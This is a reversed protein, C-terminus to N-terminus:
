ASPTLKRSRKGTFASKVWCADGLESLYPDVYKRFFDADNINYMTRFSPWSQILNKNELTRLVQLRPKYRKEISCGLSTPNKVICMADYKGTSLLVEKLKKMKDESVAFVQPSKRFAVVIDDESFGLNRFAQLKLEWSENSMSSLVRIAHIYMKSSRKIGVQDNYEVFKRMTEPKCLLARPFRKMLWFIHEKAIGCSKLFEFNPALTKELNYKLFWGSIRLVKVLEVNPGLLGKLVSLSPTVRANPRRRLTDPNSTIIKAIEDASFGLDQFFKYKPKITNELSAVLMQPWSIMIKELQTISFGSDKFFSLVSDSKHPDKLHTLVSSVRAASEPSFHHKHMLFESLTPTSASPPQKEVSSSFYHSFSVHSKRIFNSSDKTFYFLTKRMHIFM